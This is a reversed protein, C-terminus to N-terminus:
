LESSLVMDVLEEPNFNTDINDEINSDAIETFFEFQTIERDQFIPDRLNVFDELIINTQSLLNPIEEYADENNESLEKENTIYDDITAIKIMERLESETLETDFYTLKNRINAMHYFRIKAMGELKEIGLCTQKDGIFWKLTSFNRECNAQSPSISFLGQIYSLDFPKKNSDYYRFQSILEKCEQASHGLDTAPKFSNSEPIQYITAALKIM